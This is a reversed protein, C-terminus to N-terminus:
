EKVVEAEGGPETPRGLGYAALLTGAGPFQQVDIRLAQAEDLTNTMADGALTLMAVSADAPIRHM